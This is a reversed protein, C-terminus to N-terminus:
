MYKGTRFLTNFFHLIHTSFQLSAQPSTISLLISVLSHNSDPAFFMDLAKCGLPKELLREWYKICQKLIEEDIVISFIM